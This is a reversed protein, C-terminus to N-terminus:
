QHEDANNTTTVQPAVGAYEFECDSADAVTSVAAISTATVHVDVSPDATIPSTSAAPPAAAIIKANPGHSKRGLM